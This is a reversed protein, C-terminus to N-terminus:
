AGFGAEELDKIGNFGALDISLKTSVSVFVKSVVERRRVLNRKAVQSLTTTNKLTGLFSSTDDESVQNELTELLLHNGARANKFGQSHDDHSAVFILLNAVQAALMDTADLDKGGLLGRLWSAASRSTCKRGGWRIEQEGSAWRAGSFNTSLIALGALAENNQGSSNQRSLELIGPVIAIVLLFLEKFRVSLSTATKIFESYVKAVDVLDAKGAETQLDSYLQQEKTDLSSVWNDLLAEMEQIM